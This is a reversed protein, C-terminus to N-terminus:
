GSFSVFHLIINSKLFFNNSQKDINRVPPSHEDSDILQSRFVQAVKAPAQAYFDAIKKNNAEALEKDNATLQVLKDNDIWIEKKDNKWRLM